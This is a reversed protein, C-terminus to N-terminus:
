TISPDRLRQEAASELLSRQKFLQRSEEASLVDDIKGGFFFVVVCVESEM